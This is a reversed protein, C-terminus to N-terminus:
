NKKPSRAMRISSDASAEIGLGNFIMTLFADFDGVPAGTVSDTVRTGEKGTLGEFISNAYRTVAAVVPDSPRNTLSPVPAGDLLNGASVVNEKLRSLTLLITRVDDGSNRLALFADPPLTEFAKALRIIKANIADLKARAPATGRLSSAARAACQLGYQAVFSDTRRNVAEEDEEPAIRRLAERILATDIM